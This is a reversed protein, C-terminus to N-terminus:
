RSRGKRFGARVWNFALGGSLLLIPPLLAVLAMAMAGNKTTSCTIAIPTDTGAELAAMDWKDPTIVSTICEARAEKLASSYAEDVIEKPTAQPAYKEWPNGSKEPADVAPALADPQVDIPYYGGLDSARLLASFMIWSISIVIWLRWWGGLKRM